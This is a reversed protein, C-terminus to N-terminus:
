HRIEGRIGIKIRQMYPAVHVSFLCIVCVFCTLGVVTLELREYTVGLVICVIFVPTFLCVMCVSVVCNKRRTKECIERKRLQMMHDIEHELQELEFPDDM